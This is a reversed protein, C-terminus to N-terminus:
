VEEALLFCDLGTKKEVEALRINANERDEFSGCIVRFVTKKQTITGNPKKFKKGVNKLIGEAIAEAIRNINKDFNVNDQNNSIFGVEILCAKMKTERLVAFNESKIGRSTFIKLNNVAEYVDRSLNKGDVSNPFSFCELGNAQRNEVCNRHISVFYDCKKDNAIDARASLSIGRDRDRTMFIEEGNFRLLEVVLKGLILVDNKEYRLGNVAGSDSGGHGFDICGRAM